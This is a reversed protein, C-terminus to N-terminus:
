YTIDEVEESIGVVPDGAVGAQEMEAALAPDTVFGQLDELTPFAVAVDVYNPNDVSRFLRHGTAGHEIRLPGGVSEFAPKWTAFDEVPHGVLLIMKSEVVTTADPTPPPTSADPDQPAATNEDGM